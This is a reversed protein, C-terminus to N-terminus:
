YVAVHVHDYHNATASGRDSMPRWGESAREPTWIHQAWIVDYVHLASANARVWDAVAQGTASDTIMFDIAHGDAHEGHADYGGYTTLQPFANCVARYLTVANPVIGAETGSGDACPATSIGGSSAVAGGTTTKPPRPKKTALYTANVWRVRKDILVEAWHGQRQGTAALRTGFDVVRFKPAVERPGAWVNLPATAYLHRVAQPQLTVRPLARDASRTARERRSELATVDSQSLAAGARSLDVSDNGSVAMAGAGAIGAAVVGTTVTAALATPTVLRGLVSRARSRVAARHRASTM